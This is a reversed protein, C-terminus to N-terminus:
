HILQRGRGLVRRPVRLPGQGQGRDGHRHRHDHQRDVVADLAGDEVLCLPGPPDEVLEFGERLLRSISGLCGPFSSSTSVRADVASITHNM